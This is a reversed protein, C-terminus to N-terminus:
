ATAQIEWPKKRVNAKSESPTDSSLVNPIIKNNPIEDTRGQEILEKLQAFTLTQQEQNGAPLRLPITSSDSAINTEQNQFDRRAIRAEDLTISIDSIRNFYFVESGLIIEAKEDESKGELAGSSVIGALGQQYDADDAFPYSQFRELAAISPSPFNQSDM